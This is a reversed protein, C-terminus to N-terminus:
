ERLNGIWVEDDSGLIHNLGPASPESITLLDQPNVGQPGARSPSPPPEYFPMAPPISRAVMLSHHEPGQSFFQGQTYPHSRPFIQHNQPAVALHSYSGMQGGNFGSAHPFGQAMSFSWEPAQPHGHVIPYNLPNNVPFQYPVPSSFFDPTGSSTDRPTQLHWHKNDVGFTPGPTSISDNELAVPTSVAEEAVDDHSDKKVKLRLKMNRGEASDSDERRHNYKRKNRFDATMFGSSINPSTLLGNEHIDSESESSSSECADGPLEAENEPVNDFGFDLFPANTCAMESESTSDRTFIKRKSTVKRGSNKLQRKSKRSVPVGYEPDSGDSTEILAEDEVPLADITGGVNSTSGKSGAKSNSGAARRLPPPVVKGEKVRRGRLKSLHQVIAGESFKPGMTSAVKDWPIKIGAFNCAAQIALLLFADIEAIGTLTVSQSLPQTKIISMSRFSTM